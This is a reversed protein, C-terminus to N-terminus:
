SAYTGREEKRALSEEVTPVGVLKGLKCFARHAKRRKPSLENLYFNDKLQEQIAQHNPGTIMANRPTM